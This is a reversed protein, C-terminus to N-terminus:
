TLPFECRAELGPANDALTLVGRHLRTVAAVLSLGLGSGRTGHDRELRQFPQLVAQRSAEPIGPGDDCVRVVVRQEQRQVEIDIHGGRPVYKIANELLNVLLQALLQRNGHILAPEAAPAALTLGRERAEPAYLEVLERALAALDVAETGPAAAADAQAIQLLTALTRQVRELDDITDDIAAREHENWAGHQLAAELRVRMRHLPSRLDHAASNFTARVAETQQEIRDLVHNVAGALQDFEDKSGNLPLRRM